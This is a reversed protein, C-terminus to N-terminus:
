KYTKNQNEYKLWRLRVSPDTKIKNWIKDIYISLVSCEENFIKCLPCENKGSIPSFNDHELYSQPTWINNASRKVFIMYRVKTNKLGFSFIARNEFQKFKIEKLELNNLFSEIEKKNM